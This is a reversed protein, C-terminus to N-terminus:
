SRTNDTEWVLLVHFIELSTGLLKANMKVVEIVGNSAAELRRTCRRKAGMDKELFSSWDQWPNSEFVHDLKKPGCNNTTHCLPAALPVAPRFM